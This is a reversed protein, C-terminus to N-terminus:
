STSATYRLEVICNSGDTLRISQSGTPSLRDSSFTHRETGTVDLDDASIADRELAFFSVTFSASAGSPVTFETPSGVGVSTGTNAAFDRDLVTVDQDVGDIEAEVDVKFRFDGTNSGGAECDEIIQIRGSWDFTVTLDDPTPDPGPDTMDCATLTLTGLLALALLTRNLVTM